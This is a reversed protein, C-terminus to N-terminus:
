DKTYGLAELKKNLVILRELLTQAEDHLMLERIQPDNKLDEKANEVSDIANRLLRM